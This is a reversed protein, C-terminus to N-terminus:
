SAGQSTVHEVLARAAPGPAGGRRWALALRSRLRPQIIAVAVLGAGHARVASQPLVAVGLGRDALQAITRPDSAEFAVRPHLDAAACAQDISTRMGSGSPLCILPHRCLTGLTLSRQGARQQERRVAAVLPQDVVDRAEIGAPAAGSLGVLALDLEGSRLQDLMRASAAETLSIEVAPHRQHFGALLAPLDIEGSAVAGVTAVAVHGRLLGAHEDVTDSIAAVAACAARAHPLVSAGVETLRVSRGSRDLLPEGLERELQRIQASVGPQAVHLQAAAKTFSGQETVAILYKLQRLEM